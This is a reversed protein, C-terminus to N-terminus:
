VPLHHPRPRRKSRPSELMVVSSGMGIM